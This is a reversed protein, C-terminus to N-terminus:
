MREGIFKDLAARYERGSVMFGENHGGRIEVFAKPEGAAQFVARGQEFPIVEDDRSHLVLLPCRVGKVYEATNYRYTFLLYAPPFACHYRAADRFSSFTSELVLRGPSTERALWAAVSGGLSRGHIIISSPPVGKVGTLYDWAGRADRYTGEETPSGESQGYGRYDFIFVSLGLSNLLSITQLRHSINGANGHCFLVVARQPGAPVWWASIKVGDSACYSVAEYRLGVSEPSRSMAREPYYLFNAQCSCPALLFMVAVAMMARNM